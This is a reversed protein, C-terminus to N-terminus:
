WWLLYLRCKMVDKGQFQLWETKYRNLIKINFARHYHINKRLGSSKLKEMTRLAVCCWSWISHSTASYGFFSGQIPLAPRGLDSKPRTVGQQTVKHFNRWRDSSRNEQKLSPSRVLHNSLHQTRIDWKKKFLIKLQVGVAHLIKTGQGPILVMCGAISACRRVGQAM